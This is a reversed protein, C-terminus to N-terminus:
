GGHQRYEQNGATAGQVPTVPCRINLAQVHEVHFQEHGHQHKRYQGVLLRGQLFVTPQGEGGCHHNQTRTHNQIRHGLQQLQVQFGEQWRHHEVVGAVHANRNQHQCEPICRQRCGDHQENHFHQQVERHTQVHQVGM